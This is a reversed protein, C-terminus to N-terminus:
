KKKYKAAEESGGTASGKSYSHAGMGALQGDKVILYQNRIESGDFFCELIERVGDAYRAQATLSTGSTHPTMGHNPMSRWVHDNPAPQPFWVDGAYGSLQGSKLAKAIADRNCIKGRATNVIYAGKKMKSIMADDFLNETEPHLPCNITVVDCVKVMSEVTEHFTLNLEKEVSEPLRHRDFYHLHTDFPKMKKWRKKQLRMNCCTGIKGFRCSKKTCEIKLHFNLCNEDCPTKCDCENEEYNYDKRKLHAPLLNISTRVHKYTKPKKTKTSTTKEGSKKRKTVKDSKKENKANSKKKVDSSKKRQSPM